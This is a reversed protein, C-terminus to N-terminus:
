TRQLGPSRRKGRGGGVQFDTVALGILERCRAGSNPQFESGIAHRDAVDANRKAADGRLRPAGHSDFIRQAAAAQIFARDALRAESGDIARLGMAAVGVLDIKRGADDGPRDELSSADCHGEDFGPHFM